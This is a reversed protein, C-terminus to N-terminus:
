CSTELIFYSNEIEHVISKNKKLVNKKYKIKKKLWLPKYVHMKKCQQQDDVVYFDGEDNDLSSFVGLLM